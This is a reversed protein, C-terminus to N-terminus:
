VEFSEDPQSSVAAPIPAPSDTETTETRLDQVIEIVTQRMTDCFEEHTKLRPELECIKEFWQPNQLHELVEDVTLYASLDPLEDVFVEAYIVPDRDKEAWTAVKGLHQRAIPEWIARMANTDPTNQVSTNAATSASATANTSAAPPPTRVAATPAAGSTVQPTERVATGGRAAQMAAMRAELMPKIAAPAAQIVEKIIDLWNTEGKGGGGGDGMDKAFEFAKFVTDVMNGSEKPDSLSKMNVMMTSLDTLTPGPPPKLATVLGAIDTGQQVAAPKAIWATVIGGIIPILLKLWDNFQDRSEKARRDMLEFMGAMDMPGNLTEAKSKAGATSIKVTGGGPIWGKPGRVRIKYVGTGYRRKLEDISFEAVPIPDCVGEEDKPSLKIIVVVTGQAGRMEEIARFIEGGEEENLQALEEAQAQLKEDETEEVIRAKAM